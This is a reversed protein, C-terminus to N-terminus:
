RRGHDPAGDRASTLAHGGRGWEVDAQHDVALGREGLAEIRHQEGAVRLGTRQEAAMVRPALLLHQLRREDDDEVVELVRRPQGLGEARQASAM